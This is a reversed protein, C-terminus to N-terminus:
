WRQWFPIAHWARALRFKDARTWVTWKHDSIVGLDKGYADCETAPQRQDLERPYRELLTVLKIMEKQDSLGLQDVDQLFAQAAVRDRHLEQIARKRRQQVPRQWEYGFTGIFGLVLLHLLVLRDWRRRVSASGDDGAGKWTAVENRKLGAFFALLEDIEQRHTHPSGGHEQDSTQVLLARFRRYDFIIDNHQGITEPLGEIHEYCIDLVPRFADNRFHDQGPMGDNPTIQAATMCWLFSKAYRLFDLEHERAIRSDIYFAEREFQRAIALLSWFRFVFSHYYYNNEVDRTHQADMLWDAGVYLQGMRRDWDVAAELMRGHYKAILARLAERQSQKHAVRLNRRYNWAAALATAIVSLLSALIVPSPHVVSLTATVVDVHADTARASM